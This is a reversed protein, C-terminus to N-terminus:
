SQVDTDWLMRVDLGPGPPPSLLPQPPLETFPGAGQDLCVCALARGPRTWGHSRTGSRADATRRPPFRVQGGEELGPCCCGRHVRHHRRGESAPSLGESSLLFCAGEGPGRVWWCGGCVRGLPVGCAGLVLAEARSSDILVKVAGGDGPELFANGGLQTSIYTVRLVPYTHSHLVTIQSTDHLSQRRLRLFADMVDTPVCLLLFPLKGQTLSGEPNATKVAKM